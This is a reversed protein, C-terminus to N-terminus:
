ARWYVSGDKARQLGMEDVLARRLTVADIGFRSRSPALWSAIL